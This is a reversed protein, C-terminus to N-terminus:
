AVLKLKPKRNLTPPHTWARRDLCWYNLPVPSPKIGEDYDIGCEDIGRWTLAVLTPKGRQKWGRRTVVVWGKAECSVFTRHLTGKAWNRKHLLSFTPSLAGNNRGNYQFLLDMLFKTEYASLDGFQATAAIRYPIGIFREKTKQPRAM